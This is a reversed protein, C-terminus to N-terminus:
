PRIIEKEKKGMGKCAQDTFSQLHNSSAQTFIALDDKSVQLHDNIFGFGKTIIPADTPDKFGVTIMATALSGFQAMKSIAAYLTNVVQDPNIVMMSLNEMFKSFPGDSLADLPVDPMNVNIAWVKITAEVDKPISKEAIDRGLLDMNYLSTCEVKKEVAIGHEDKDTYTITARLRMNGREPPIHKGDPSVLNKKVLDIDNV